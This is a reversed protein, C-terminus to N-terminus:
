GINKQKKGIGIQKNRIKEQSKVLAVKAEKHKEKMEKVFEEAKENKGKKRIDFGMRPEKGYNVQFLLMKIVIHIKNNFVFEATALWESWNNQKHNVYMRLYQELEQNTRETQRDTEPHYAMSLKTEIGLMKNLEKMLGAAFQPGRDSIVSEPLGHLKWVNDRFLRALGEM